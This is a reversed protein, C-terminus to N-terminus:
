EATYTERLYFDVLQNTNGDVGTTIRQLVLTTKNLVLVTWISGSTIDLQDGSLSWPLEDTGIVGDSIYHMTRTQYFFQLEDTGVLNYNDWVGDPYDSARITEDKTLLWKDNNHSLLGIDSTTFDGVKVTITKTVSGGPGTAKFTYDKNVYLSDTTFKTLNHDIFVGNVTLSTVNTVAIGITDVDAFPISDRALSLVITPMPQIVTVKLTKSKSFSKNTAVITFSETADLTFDQNGTASVNAGNLTIKDANVVTWSVTVTEGKNITDKSVSLTIVPSKATPPTIIGGGNSKKSCGILILLFLVVGFVTLRKITKM